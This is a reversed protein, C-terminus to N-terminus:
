TMIHQVVTVVRLMNDLPESNVNRARVSHGTPQQSQQPLPASVRPEVAGPAAVAVQRAPPQQQDETRDHLAAAFSVGPTTLTPSFVRGTTIKPSKKRQEEEKAHRCGRYNSPYAKEGEALQCNCCTPTSAANGKQPWWWVVFLPPLPNSATQGSTASSSATTASRLDM